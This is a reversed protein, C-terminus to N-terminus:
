NYPTLLFSPIKQTSWRWINIHLSPKLTLHFAYISDVVILQNMSFLTPL